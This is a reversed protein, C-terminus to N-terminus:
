VIIPITHPALETSEGIFLEPTDYEIRLPRPTKFAQEILTEKNPPEISTISPTMNKLLPNSSISLVKVDLGARLSCDALGRVTGVAAMGTTCLIADPLHHTRLHDCIASRALEYHPSAPDRECDILTGEHQNNRLFDQWAHIQNDIMRNPLHGANLCDITRCNRQALYDLATSTIGQPPDCITTIGIDTYDHFFTILRAANKQMQKLLLPPPASPSFFFILDYPDNLHKILSPDEKSHYTIMNISFRHQACLNEIPSYWEANAQSPFGPLIVAVHKKFTHSLFDPHIEPQRSTTNRILINKEICAVVAKRVTTLSMGTESALARESPFPTHIYDGREVASIIYETLYDSKISAKAM